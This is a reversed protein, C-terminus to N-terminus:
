PCILGGRVTPYCRLPYASLAWARDADYRAARLEAAARASDELSAAVFAHTEDSAPQTRLLALARDVQAGFRPDPEILRLRALGDAAVDDQRLRLATLAGYLLATGSQPARQLVQAFTAAAASFADLRYQAVGIGQLPEIRDPHEALASQFEAVAGAFDGRALAREGRTQASAACGALALALGAAIIRTV